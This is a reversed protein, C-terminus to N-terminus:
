TKRPRGTISGDNNGYFQTYVPLSNPGKNILNTARVDADLPDQILQSQNALAVMDPDNTIRLLDKKADPNRVLVTYVEGFTLEDLICRGVGQTFGDPPPTFWVNPTTIDGSCLTCCNKNPNVMNHMQFHGMGCICPRRACACPPAPPCAPLRKNVVPGFCRCPNENCNCSM